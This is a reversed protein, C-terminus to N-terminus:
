QVHYWIKGRKIDSITIRSVGFMDAIEQQTLIGEKLLLKIQIVQEETLKHQPHNEGKYNLKGSKFEEKRTKSIKIKTENLLIKGKNHYKSHRSHPESKLNDIFNNEKDENTHHVDYNKELKKNFTEYVLRHIVKTKSKKNKNHLDVYFYGKHNRCQKLIRCDTGKWKIFSKIRGLNSVQYEPYEEITKWVENELDNIDLNEYIKM